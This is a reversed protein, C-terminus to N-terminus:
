DNEDLKIYRKFDVSVDPNFIHKMSSSYGIHEAVSPVTCIIENGNKSAIGTVKTDFASKNYKQYEILTDKFYKDYLIKDFGLCPAGCTKKTVYFKGDYVIPHRSLGNEGRTLTNFGSIINNPFIEKYYTMMDYFYNNVIMDTNLIIVYDYNEAFCDEIAIVLSDSIGANEEKFIRKILCDDRKFNNILNITKKNTSADDIFYLLTEKKLFTLKLSDLCKKLYKPRDYTPLIIAVRNIM